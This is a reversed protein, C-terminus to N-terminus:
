EDTAKRQIEVHLWRGPAYCEIRLGSEITMAFKDHKTTRFIMLDGAPGIGFDYEVKDDNSYNHYSLKNDVPDLCTVVVRKETQKM